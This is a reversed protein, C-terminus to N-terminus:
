RLGNYQITAEIARIEPRLIPQLQQIANTPQQQTPNHAPQVTDICWLISVNEIAQTDMAIATNRRSHEVATHIVSGGEWPSMGWGRQMSIFFVLHNRLIIKTRALAKMMWTTAHGYKQILCVIAIASTQIYHTNSVLAHTDPYYYCSSVNSLFRSYLCPLHAEVFTNAWNASYSMM